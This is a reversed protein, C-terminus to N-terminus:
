DKERATFITTGDKKKMLKERVRITLQELVQRLPTPTRQFLRRTPKRIRILEILDNPVKSNNIEVNPIYKDTAVNIADPLNM